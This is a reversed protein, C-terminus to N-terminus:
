SPISPQCPVAASERRWALKGDIITAGVYGESLHQRAQRWDAILLCMDAQVGPRIERVIHPQDPEGLFLALAQEPTVAEEAGLVHNNPTRRTVAARMAAWPDADGFPADSGAALPICADLFGRGRYLWPQDEPEVEALYTDGREAVFNPQTVVILGLEKILPLVDDPAVSAHEIRDGPLSGAEQIAALTFVLEARTVCHVAIARGQDHSERIGAVLTDFTPLDAEHLHFKTEGTSVGGSDGPSLSPAGALRIRQLLDGEARLQRFIAATDDDNRPTMDTLGILGLAALKQSAAAIPPQTAGLLNRLERDRDFLRGDAPLSTTPDVSALVDLAASNLIWLRGSRHQIRIPRDPARRDLWARDIDGAVQEQYGIGRIWGGEDTGWPRGLTAALADADTVAPPGCLLSNLSAAYSMLHIHHDHLGPLLAGGRAEIVFEDTVPQLRGIEAIRHGSVRVDQRQGTPYIEADRILM